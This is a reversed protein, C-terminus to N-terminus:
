LSAKQDLGHETKEWYFPNTFLQIFGKWAAWSMLGWYVPTWLASKTLEFAGRQLSGAISLFVFVFNGIFLMAAAAYFVYSPFLTEIFGAQTLFYLTTLTWFLPNLLHVFAGGVILNFSLFGALGLEGFLKFPNRMHVLWTQMYGKIWRSRQRVWNPVESNAEELTVSDIVITRLDRRALRIGLDADETVNYPDWGGLDRLVTTKFHNSTGGLPIPVGEAAMSPLVLEYHMSYENAFWGTLLNQAGNFYNLKAQVCVVDEPAQTFAVLARKLQDPDPQDEADFIVAYDGDALHMGYNCAKPKTKPLSEPVVVLRFYPPLNMSRITQITEVDEEECLLKVDLKTRPYDLARIGAVLRDVIGAEKYLPVFLTYTPLDREPLAAVDESSVHTELDRGLARYTLWFRYGAVALYVVSCTAVITVLAAKPWAILLGLCALVTGALVVKQAMTIVQHGSLDPRERRLANVALDSLEDRHLHQTLEDLETTTVLLRELREGNPAVLQRLVEVEETTHARSVAVFVTDEVARVPLFALRRADALSVETGLVPGLDSPELSAQQLGSVHAVVAVMVHQAVLEEALLVELLDGGTRAQVCLGTVLHEPSILAFERLAAVVERTMSVREDVGGREGHPQSALFDQRQALVVESPQRDAVVPVELLHELVAVVVETDETSSGIRVPVAGLDFPAADLIEWVTSGTIDLVAAALLGSPALPEAATREAQVTM